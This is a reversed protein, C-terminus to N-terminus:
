ESWVSNIGAQLYFRSRRVESREFVPKGEPDLRPYHPTNREIKKPLFLLDHAFRNQVAHRIHESDIGIKASFTQATNWNTLAGFSWIGHSTKGYPLKELSRFGNPCKHSPTKDWFSNATEGTWLFLNTFFKFDNYRYNLQLTGTRFRDKAQGGFVDNEFLLSFYNIHMSWAGSRQSTKAKDFYWLYNFGIAKSHRTQHNLGDLQFDPTISKKDGVLILGLANRNEWFLKRKGYSTFVYKLQSSVNLQYFYDSYYLNTNVGVSNVHTGINLVIGLQWGFQTSSQLQGWLTSFSLCSALCFFPILFAKLKM